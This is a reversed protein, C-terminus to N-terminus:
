MFNQRQKLSWTGTWKIYNEDYMILENTQGKWRTQLINLHIIDIGKFDQHTFAMCYRAKFNM